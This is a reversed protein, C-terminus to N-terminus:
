DAGAAVSNEQAYETLVQLDSNRNYRKIREKEAVALEREKERIEPILETGALNFKDPNEPTTIWIHIGKDLGKEIITNKGNSEGLVVIQKRGDKTYVFTVRDAEAHISENPVYLVDDYEKIIVKNSTTMSPRLLPEFGEIRALVEFVKSDSNPLQEGINAISSIMAKYNKDPFADITIEVPLGKSIKNIDIESIYIRSIMSSLDPLTAVVPDWPSFNSGTKIKQGLRDRKYIVMGDAPARVTFSALVDSMDKVVREQSNVKIELNKLEAIVQKRKLEYQRKNQEVARLAKENSIETQRQVAPPEYASQKVAIDAESAAFEQNIIENRLTSLVVASDLLKVHLNEEAEKLKDQEERLTNVFGSKDLEAVLDGKKVETGEPVMENIRVPTARFRRNGVLDPGKIDMSNEAFLEGMADVSIEFAGEKVEAFTLDKNKDSLRLFIILSFLSVFGVVATIILTRKM